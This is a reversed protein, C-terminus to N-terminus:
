PCQEGLKYGQKCVCMCLAEKGPEDCAPVVRVTQTVSRGDRDTVTVTLEYEKGFLDQMSWQNPCAAINSVTFVDTPVSGGWGDNTPEFNVIRSDLRIQESVPDKLQGALRIACPDMNRVRAGVFIVRGAGPPQLLSVSGGEIIPAFLGGPGLSVLEIEPAMTPDGLFPIECRAIPVSPWPTPTEGDSCGLLLLATSILCICKLANM